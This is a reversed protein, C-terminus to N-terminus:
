VKMGDSPARADYQATRCPSQWRRLFAFVRHKRNRDGRQTDCGWYSCLHLEGWGDSLSHIEELVATMGGRDDPCQPQGFEGENPGTPRFEPRIPTCAMGPARASPLDYTARPTPAAHSSSSFTGQRPSFPRKRPPARSPPRPPMMPLPPILGPAGQPSNTRRAGSRQRECSPGVKTHAYPLNKKLWGM